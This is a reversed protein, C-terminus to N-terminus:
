AHGRETADIARRIREERVADRIADIDAVGSPHVVFSTPQDAFERTADLVDLMYRATARIEDPTM